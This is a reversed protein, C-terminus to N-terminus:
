PADVPLLIFHPFTRPTIARFHRQDFTLLRPIGLREAAAVISADAVGIDLDRYQDLLQRCRLLDANEFPILRFDGNEVARLLEYAAAAGLRTHFLYDIEALLVVPVLLDESESELAAVTAAHNANASDYAAFLGSTDCILAM